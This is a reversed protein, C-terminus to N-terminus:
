RGMDASILAWDLMANGRLGTLQFVAGNDQPLSLADGVRIDVGGLEMTGVVAIHGVNDSTMGAQEATNEVAKAISELLSEDSITSYVHLDPLVSLGCEQLRSMLRLSTEPPWSRAKDGRLLSVHASLGITTDDDFADVSLVASAVRDTHAESVAASLDSPGFDTVLLLRNVLPQIRGVRAAKEVLAQRQREAAALAGLRRLDEATPVPPLPPFLRKRLRDFREGFNM